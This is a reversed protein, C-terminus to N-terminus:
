ELDGVLPFSISSTDPQCPCACLSTVRSPVGVAKWITKVLNLKTLKQFNQIVFYQRGACSLLALCLQADGLAIFIQGQHILQSHLASQKCGMDWCATASSHWPSAPFAAFGWIWSVM